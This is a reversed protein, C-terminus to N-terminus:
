KGNCFYKSDCSEKFTLRMKGLPNGAPFVFLFIFFYLLFPAWSLPSSPLGLSGLSVKWPVNGRQSRRPDPHLVDLSVQNFDTSMFSSYLHSNVVVVRKELSKCVGCTVHAHGRQTEHQWSAATPYIFVSLFLFAEPVLNLHQANIFLPCWRIHSPWTSSGITSGCQLWDIRRLVSLSKHFRPGGQWCVDLSWLWIV